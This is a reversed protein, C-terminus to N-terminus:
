ISKDEKEKLWRRNKHWSPESTLRKHLVWRILAVLGVVVFVLSIEAVFVLMIGLIGTLLSLVPEAFFNLIAEM